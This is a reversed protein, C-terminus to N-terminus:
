YHWEDQSVITEVEKIFVRFQSVTLTEQDPVALTNGHYVMFQHNAMSIPGYFNLEKLKDILQERNCAILKKM